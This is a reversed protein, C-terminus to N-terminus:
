DIQTVTVAFVLNIQPASGGAAKDGYYTDGADNGAFAWEWTIATNGIVTALDVNPAVDVSFAELASRLAGFSGTAGGDNAAVLTGNISWTVPEYYDPTGTDAGGNALADLDYDWGTFTSGATSITINCAVEPTGTIGFNLDTGTIQASGTGPAVLKMGDSSPNTIVSLAGVAPNAALIPYTTAFLRGSASVTVGWKAVRATDTGSGSSVYKALTGGMFCTSFLTFALTLVMARLVWNKKTKQM